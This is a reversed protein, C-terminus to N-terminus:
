FRDTMFAFCSIHFALLSFPLGFGLFPHGGVGQRLGPKPRLSEVAFSPITVGMDDPATLTLRPARPVGLLDGELCM